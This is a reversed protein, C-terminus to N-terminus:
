RTHVLHTTSSLLNASNSIKKNKDRKLGFIGCIDSVYICFVVEASINSRIFCQQIFGYPNLQDKLACGGSPGKLM